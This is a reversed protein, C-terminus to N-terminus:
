QDQDLVGAVGGPGGGGHVLARGDDVLHVPLEQGVRHLAVRRQGGALRVGHVVDRRDVPRAGLRAVLHRLVDSRALRDRQVQVRDVADERVDPHALREGVAGVALGRGLGREVTHDRVLAVRRDAPGGGAIVRRDGARVGIVRGLGALQQVLGAPRPPVGGSVPGLAALFEVHLEGVRRTRDEGVLARGQQLDQLLLPLLGAEVHRQDGLSLRLREGARVGSGGGVVRLRPVPGARAGRDEPDDPARAGLGIRVVAVRGEVVVGLESRDDVVAVGGGRCDRRVLVVRLCLLDDLVLGGRDAQVVLRHRDRGRLVQVVEPELLALALRDELVGVEGLSTGNLLARRIRTLATVATRTRTAAADTVNKAWSSTGPLRAVAIRLWSFPRAWCHVAAWSAGTLWSNPNSLGSM